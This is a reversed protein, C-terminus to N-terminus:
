LFAQTKGFYGLLGNRPRPRVTQIGGPTAEGGTRVAKRNNGIPDDSDARPRLHGKPIDGGAVFRVYEVLRPANTLRGLAWVENRLRLL